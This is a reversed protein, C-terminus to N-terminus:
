VITVSLLTKGDADIYVKQTAKMFEECIFTVRWVKATKDYDVMAKEFVVKAEEEALEFVFEKDVDTYKKVNKFETMNVGPDDKKYLKKDDEYSFEGYTIPIEPVEQSLIKDLESNESSEAKESTKKDDGSCAAFCFMLALVLLISIFKKM